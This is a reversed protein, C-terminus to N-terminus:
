NMSHYCKPGKYSCTHLLLGIRMNVAEMSSLHELRIAEGGVETWLKAAIHMVKSRHSDRKPIFYHSTEERYHKEVEMVRCIFIAEHGLARM